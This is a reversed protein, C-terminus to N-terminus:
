EPQTWPVFLAAVIIAMAAFGWAGTVPLSGIIAILIALLIVLVVPSMAAFGRPRDRWGESSRKLHDSFAESETKAVFHTSDMTDCTYSCISASTHGKRRLGLVTEFRCDRAVDFRPHHPADGKTFTM